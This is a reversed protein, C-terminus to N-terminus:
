SESNHDPTYFLFRCLKMALIFLFVPIIQQLVRLYSDDWNVWLYKDAACYSIFNLIIYGLWLFTDTSIFFEKARLLAFVIIVGFIPASIGWSSPYLLMNRFTMDINDVVQNWNRLTLLLLLLFMGGYLLLTEPLSFKKDLVPHLLFIYLCAALISAIVFAVNKNNAISTFAAQMVTAKLIVRVYFLWWLESIISPLFLFFLTKKPYLNKLSFCVMLFCVFIIGDKRLLTLAALFLSILIRCDSNGAFALPQTTKRVSPLMLIVVFFIYAMCYMNALVWASAIIFSTSSALVLTFLGSYFLAKKQASAGSKSASMPVDVLSQFSLQYRYLGYFFCAAINATLLAQAQFCQDLGWFSTYANLLPLFQSINTLTFSNEGVIDSFNGVISLTHGYNTFYFYSDYSVFVYIFGTSVLFIFGLSILLFPLSALINEKFRAMITYKKNKRSLLLPLFSIVTVLLTTVGFSYPLGLLLLFLSPFVWLCIGLPFAFLLLFVADLSKQLGTLFLYGWLFLLLLALVQKAQYLFVNDYAIKSFYGQNLFLSVMFALLSFVLFACSFLFPKGYVPNKAAEKKITTDPM